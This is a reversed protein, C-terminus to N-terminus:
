FFDLEYSYPVRQVVESTVVVVVDVDIVVVVVVDIIVNVVIFVVYEINAVTAIIDVVVAIIIIKTTRSQWDPM